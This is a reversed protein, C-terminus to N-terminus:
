PKCPFAQTLEMVLVIGLDDDPTARNAKLAGDLLSAANDAGLRLTPPVCFLMPQQRHALTGNAVTLAQLYTSLYNRAASHALSSPDKRWEQYASIKISAQAATAAMMAAALCAMRVANMKKNSMLKM